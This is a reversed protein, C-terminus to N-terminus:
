NLNLPLGRLAAIHVSGLTTITNGWREYIVSEVFELKRSIAAWLCIIISCLESPAVDCPYDRPCREPLVANWLYGISMSLGARTVTDEHRSARVKRSSGGRM